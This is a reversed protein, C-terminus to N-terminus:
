QQEQKCEIKLEKLLELGDTTRYQNKYVVKKIGSQIIMKACEMCPSTTCFMVAGEGSEGDKALKLIANAEAHIVYSYTNGDQDQCENDMGHPTGNYGTSIIRDGSVIIAGNKQRNCYSLRAFEQAINMYVDALKQKM